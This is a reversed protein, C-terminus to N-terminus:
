GNKIPNPPGSEVTGAPMNESGCITRRPLHTQILNALGVPSYSANFRTKVLECLAEITLDPKARMIQALEDRQDRNLKPQRGHVGRCLAAAGGALFMRRWGIVTTLDSKVGVAADLTSRGEALYAMARLRKAIHRDKASAALAYLSAADTPGLQRRAIKQKRHLLGLVGDRRLIQVWQKAAAASAGTNRL